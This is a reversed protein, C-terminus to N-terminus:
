CLLKNNEQIFKNLNVTMNTFSHEDSINAVFTKVIINRNTDWIQFGLTVFDNFRTISYSVNHYKHGVKNLFFLCKNIFTKTVMNNLKM